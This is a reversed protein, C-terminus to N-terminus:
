PVPVGRRALEERAMKREKAVLEDNGENMSDYRGEVFGLLYETDCESPVFEWPENGSWDLVSPLDADGEKCWELVEERTFPKRPLTM